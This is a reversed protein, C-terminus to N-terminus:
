QQLADRLSEPWPLLQVASHYLPLSFHLCTVPHSVSLAQSYERLCTADQLSIGKEECDLSNVGSLGAQCLGRPLTARQLVHYVESMPLGTVQVKATCLIGLKV